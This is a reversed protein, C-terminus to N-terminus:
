ALIQQLSYITCMLLARTGTLQLPKSFLVLQNFGPWSIIFYLDEM